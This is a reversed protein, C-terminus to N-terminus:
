QSNSINSIYHKVDYEFLLANKRIECRKYLAVGVLLGKENHGSYDMSTARYIM